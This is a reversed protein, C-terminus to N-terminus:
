SPLGDNGKVLGARVADLFQRATRGSFGNQQQAWILAQRRLADLSQTFGLRQALHEVTALYDGQTFP